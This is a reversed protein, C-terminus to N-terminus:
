ESHEKTYHGKVVHEMDHSFDCGGCEYEGTSENYDYDYVKEEEEDEGLEDDEEYGVEEGCHICRFPSDEYEPDDEPNDFLTLVFKESPTHHIHEPKEGEEMEDWTSDDRELQRIAM